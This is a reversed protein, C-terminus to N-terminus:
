EQEKKFQSVQNCWWVFETLDTDGRWSNLARCVLQINDKTYPGGAQIRDISANTKCINGKSLQCTLPVGSLACLYNQQELITLLCEVTLETRNHQNKLRNFYQRWNGSIKAYQTETTEQGFIYKAKGKCKESCYKHVGSRKVFDEECILCKTIRREESIKTFSVSQLYDRKGDRMYPM